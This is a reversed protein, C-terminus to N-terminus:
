VVITIMLKIQVPILQNILGNNDNNLLPGYIYEYSLVTISLIAITGSNSSIYKSIM